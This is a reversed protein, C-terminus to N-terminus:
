SFLAEGGSKLEDATMGVKEAMSELNVGDPLMNMVNDLLGM